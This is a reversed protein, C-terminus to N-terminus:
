DVMEGTAVNFHVIEPPGNSVIGEQSTEAWLGDRPNIRELTQNLLFASVVPRRQMLRENTHHGSAVDPGSVAESRTFEDFLVARAFRATTKRRGEVPAPVTRGPVSIASIVATLVIHDSRALVIVAVLLVEGVSISGVVVVCETAFIDGIMLIVNHAVVESLLNSRHRQIAVNATVGRTFSNGRVVTSGDASGRAGDSPGEIGDGQAVFEGRASATTTKDEEVIGVDISTDIGDPASNTVRVKVTTLPITVVKAVM